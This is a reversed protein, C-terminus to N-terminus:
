QGSCEEVKYAYPIGVKTSIYSRLTYQSTGKLNRLVMACTKKKEIRTVLYHLVAPFLIRIIAWHKLIQPVIQLFHFILM